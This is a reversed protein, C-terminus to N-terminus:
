HYNNHPDVFRSNWRSVKYQIVRPDQVQIVLKTEKTKNKNKSVIEILLVILAIVIIVGTTECLSVLNLIHATEFGSTEMVITPSVCELFDQSYLDIGQSMEKPMIGDLHRFLKLVMGAEIIRRGRGLSKKKLPTIPMQRHVLTKLYLKSQPDISTWSLMRSMKPDNMALKIKCIANRLPTADRSLKMTLLVMNGSMMENFLDKIKGLGMEIVIENEPRRSTIADWLNKEISSQPAFKFLEYDTQQKVFLVRIEPRDIIDQYTDITIPKEVVVMETSLLNCFYGLIFVTSSLSVLLSIVRPFVMDYDFEDQMFFLCFVQYFPERTEKIREQIRDKKFSVKRCIV